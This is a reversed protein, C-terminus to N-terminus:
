KMEKWNLKEMLFIQSVMFLTFYRQNVQETRAWWGLRRARSSACISTRSCRALATPCRRPSSVLRSCSSSPPTRVRGSSSMSKPRRSTHTFEITGYATKFTQSRGTTMLTLHNMPMQSIVGLEALRSEQSVYNIARPRLFPVLAELKRSPTCKARDNAYLGKKVKKLLGSKVHRNLSALLTKMTEQPFLAAFMEPTFLWVGESDFKDLEALLEQTNM